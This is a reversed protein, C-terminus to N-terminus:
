FNEILNEEMSQEDFNALTELPREGLNSISIGSTLNCIIKVFRGM